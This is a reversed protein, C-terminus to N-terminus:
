CGGIVIFKWLGNGGACHADGRKAVRRPRTMHCSIAGGGRQSLDYDTYCIIFISPIGM